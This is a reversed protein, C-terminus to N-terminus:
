LNFRAAIKAAQSPLAAALSVKLLDGIVFPTVGAAFAQAVTLGYVGCLWGVGGAFVLVTGAFIAAWRGVYNATLGRDLLTGMAFAAIPYTWLYGATPGVLGPPGMVPAFVPLGVAGEALYALTATVALNRGLTLVLLPIALTQLTLPVPWMPVAVHAAAALFVSGALALALRIAVTRPVAASRARLMSMDTDCVTM